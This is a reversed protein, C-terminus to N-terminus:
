NLLWSELRSMWVASGLLRKWTGRTYNRKFLEIAYKLIGFLISQDYEVRVGGLSM